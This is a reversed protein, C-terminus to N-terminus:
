NFLMARGSCCTKNAFKNSFLFMPRLASQVLKIPGLAYSDGSKIYEFMTTNYLNPSMSHGNFDATLILVISYAVPDRFENISFEFAGFCLLNQYDPTISRCEGSDGGM